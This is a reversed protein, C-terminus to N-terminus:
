WKKLQAETVPMFVATTGIMYLLLYWNSEDTDFLSAGRWRSHIIGAKGTALPTAKEGIGFLFDQYKPETNMTTKSNTLLPGASVPSVRYCKRPVQHVRVMLWGAKRAHESWQALTGNSGRQRGTICQSRYARAPNQSADGSFGYSGFNFIGCPQPQGACPYRVGKEPGNGRRNNGPM